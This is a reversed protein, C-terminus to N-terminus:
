NNIWWCWYQGRWLLWGWINHWRKKWDKLCKQVDSKTHSEAGETIRNQDRWHHCFLTRERKDEAEPISLLWVFGHRTSPQLMMLTSTKTFVNVFLCYLALLHLIMSDLNHITRGCIEHCSGISKGVEVVVERVTIM